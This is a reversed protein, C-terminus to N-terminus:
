FEKKIIADIENFKREIDKCLAIQCRARELNHKESKIKFYIDGSLYDSLFRLALEYTMIYVSSAFTQIEKDTVINKLYKFYGKCFREFRNLDFSVLELNTEDENTTCCISRAGDGFDYGCLGPMLTDLDIVALAKLTQKDFIVNNCKTDNHTVRIPILNKELLNCLLKGKEKNQLIYEIDNAAEIKRSNISHYLNHEFDNIRKKTDHFNPITINLKNADFGDFLYQFEGFAKGAEEIVDLNSTTDFCVCDFYNCVRWYNGNDDVHYLKNQKTSIFSLVILDKEKNTSDVYNNALAINEMIKEPENFVNKNIRQVLYQYEAGDDCTVVKYTTNINGSTIIDFSKFEGKILFENCIKSINM